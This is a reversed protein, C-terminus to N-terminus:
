GTRAGYVFLTQGFRRLLSAPLHRGLAAHLRAHAAHSLRLAKHGLMFAGRVEWRFAEPLLPGLEEANYTWHPVDSSGLLGLWRLLTNLQRRTTVSFYVRDRSVRCLEGLAAHPDDFHMFSEHCFVV